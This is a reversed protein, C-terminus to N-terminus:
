VHARGIQFFSRRNLCGTLADRTALWELERNQKRVEETSTRLSSLAGRLEEQKNHLATVDEFSAVVGRNVNKDDRIPVTSVSYIRQNEAASRTLLVGKLPRETRATTHWPLESMEVGPMSAFQCNDVHLGACSEAPMGTATAFSENALVITQRNDLVLLGESLANLAERVRNPVVKSPNLQKLVKKLFVSFSFFLSTSVFGILPIEPRLRFGLVEANGTSAFRVELQGWREGNATIPVSYEDRGSKGGIGSWLASHPGSAVVIKGDRDRVGISLVSTNRDHITELTTQLQESDIRSALTMFSVATSECFSQRTQQTLADSNPIFGCLGAVLLVSVVLSVLGLIIRQSSSLRFM